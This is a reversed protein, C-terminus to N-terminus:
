LNPCKTSESKTQLDNSKQDFQDRKQKEWGCIVRGHLNKKYNCGEKQILCIYRFGSFLGRVEARILQREM